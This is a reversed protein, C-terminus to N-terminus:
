FGISLEVGPSIELIAEDNVSFIEAGTVMETTLKGNDYFFVDAYCTVRFAINEINTLEVRTYDFFEVLCDDLVHFGDTCNDIDILGGDSYFYSDGAARIALSSNNIYLESLADSSYESNGILEIAETSADNVRIIATRNELDSMYMLIGIRSRDITIEALDFRNEFNGGPRLNLGVGDSDTIEITRGNRFNASSELGDRGSNSILISGGNAFDEVDGVVMGTEENDRSILTGTNIHEGSSLDFEFGHNENSESIIDGDNDFIGQNSFFGRNGSGQIHISGNNTLIPMSGGNSVILAFGDNGANVIEIDGNNILTCSVCDLGNFDAGSILLTGNTEIELQAELGIFLRKINVNLNEISVEVDTGFIIVEDSSKPVAGTSWKSAESWKGQGGIWTVQSFSYTVIFINILVMSILRMAIPNELMDIATSTGKLDFALYPFPLCMNGVGAPPITNFYSSIVGLPKLEVM